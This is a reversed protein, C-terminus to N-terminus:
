LKVKFEGLLKAKIGNRTLIGIPRGSDDVVVCTNVGRAHMQSVAYEITDGPKCKV